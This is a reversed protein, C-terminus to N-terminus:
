FVIGVGAVAQEGLQWRALSVSTDATTGGSELAAEKRLSSSM